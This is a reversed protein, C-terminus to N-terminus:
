YMVLPVRRAPPPPMHEAGWAALTAARLATTAVDPAKDVWEFGGRYQRVDAARIAGLLPEDEREDHIWLRPEDAKQQEIRDRFRRCAAYWSSALVALGSGWADAEAAISADPGKALEDAVEKGDPGWVFRGVGHLEALRRVVGAVWLTGPRTAVIEITTAGTGPDAWGVAVTAERSSPDVSWAVALGSADAPIQTGEAVRAARFSGLDIPTAEAAANNDLGGYARLADDRDRELEGAVFEAKLGHDRRPHNAMILELLAANPLKRTPIGGIQEPVCWEFFAIGRNQGAEVAARGRARDAKMWGSDLTGAASLKWEQGSRVSWAPRYGGQIAERDELSFSWLEDVVVLGPEEGHMTSADPAFPLFEVGTAPWELVEHDNSIIKRLEGRPYLKMVDVCTASWRRVASKRKQATIWASAPDVPRGCRHAIVPAVVATKGARRVVFVIVEDYAWSGDPLVELGVDLVYRQWPFVPRGM